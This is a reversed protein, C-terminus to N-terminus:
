SMFETVRKLFEVVEADRITETSKDMSDIAQFLAEFCHLVAPETSNVLVPNFKEGANENRVGFVARPGICITGDFESRRLLPNSDNLITVHIVGNTIAAVLDRIFSSREEESLILVLGFFSIRGDYLFDILASKYIVASCKPHVKEYFGLISQLEESVQGDLAAKVAESDPLLVPMSTHLSQVTGTMLFNQFFRERHMQLFPTRFLLPQRGRLLSAIAGCYDEMVAKDKTIIANRQSLVPDYYCIVGIANRCIWVSYGNEAFEPPLSFFDVHIRGALGFYFAIMDRCINVSFKRNELDALLAVHIERGEPLAQDIGTWFPQCEYLGFDELVPISFIEIRGSEPLTGADEIASLIARENDIVSKKVARLMCNSSAAREAQLERSETQSGYAEALISSIRHALEDGSLNGDLSFDECIASRGNDDGSIVLYAAIEDFIAKNNRVSPVKEGSIWRSIYSVDYGLRTALQFQKVGADNLLKRLTEGFTM